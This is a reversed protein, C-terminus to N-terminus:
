SSKALFIKCYKQKFTNISPLFHVYFGVILMTVSVFILEPTKYDSILLLALFFLHFGTSASIVIWDLENDKKLQGKNLMFYVFSIIILIAVLLFSYFANNINSTIYFIMFIEVIILTILSLFLCLIPYFIKLKQNKRFYYIFYSYSFVVVFWAMFNSAPIGFWFGNTGAWTWFGERHAIAEMSLDVNLALLTVLFPRVKKVVEFRDVTAMSVYIIVGWGLAVAIPSGLPKVTFDGYSYSSSITLGFIELLFGYFTIIILELLYNKGRKLSHFVCLIFLVTICIELFIFSGIM